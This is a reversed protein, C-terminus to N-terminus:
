HHWTRCAALTRVHGVEGVLVDVGVADAHVDDLRAAAKRHEQAVAKRLQPIRPAMLQAGQGIRAEAGDRRVLAAVAVGVRGGGDLLVADMVEDAVEGPQEVREADLLAAMTPWSQPPSTTQCIASSAGCRTAATTPTLVGNKGRRGIRGVRAHHAGRRLAVKVVDEVKLLGADGVGFEAAVDAARQAAEIPVDRAVEDLRVFSMGIPTMPGLSPPMRSRKGSPGCPSKRVASSKSTNAWAKSRVPKVPPRFQYRLKSRLQSVM